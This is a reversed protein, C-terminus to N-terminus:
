KYEEKIVGLQGYNDVCLYWTDGNPSTMKLGGFVNKINDLQSDFNDLRKGVTGYGKRAQVIESRLNDYDQLSSLAVELASFENTSTVSNVTNICAIVELEFPISTLM